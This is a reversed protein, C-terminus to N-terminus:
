WRFPLRRPTRLRSPKRPYSWSATMTDAGASSPGEFECRDELRYRPGDATELVAAHFTDGRYTAVLKTRPSLNRDEIPM